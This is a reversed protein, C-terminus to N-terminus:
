RGARDPPLVGPVLMVRDLHQEGRETIEPVLLGDLDHVVVLGMSGLWRIQMDIWEPLKNIGWEAKLQVSLLRSNLRGDPQQRLASLIERRAQELMLTEIATM